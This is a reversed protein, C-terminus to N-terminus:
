ESLLTEVHDIDNRIKLLAMRYARIYMEIPGGPRNWGLKLAGKMLDRIFVEKEIPNNNLVKLDNISNNLAAKMDNISLKINTEDLLNFLYSNYGDKMSLSTKNVLFEKLGGVGTSVIPCGFLLGEAATLGFSETKSPVFLIDAAARYLIGWNTQFEVDQIILVNNPYITVLQQLSDIPYDSIQGMIIFLVDQSALLETAAQFFDLGKNYQFKGIFLVIMRNLDGYSLLGERILHLKASYKSTIILSQSSNEITEAYLLAADFTYINRPFNSNTEILMTNNFPNFGTFDLGNTIGIWEGKIARNLISPMILEKAYFDLSGEIMEQAIIKSVFTVIQAQDIAVASTYMRHGHFYQPKIETYNGLDLFKQVYSISNSYIPEEIYDHLTYAIAPKPWRVKEKVYLSNMFEIVLANSSGHIHVVDVGRADTLDFLPTDIDTNLYTILEAVAKCFYVDEWEQPLQRLPSYYIESVDNAKFASHFSDSERSPPGIVYVRISYPKPPESSMVDPNDTINWWFRNVMFKVPQQKGHRDRVQVELQAFKESRYLNRLYSYYPLIVHVAYSGNNAQAQALGTVIQGMSGLTAPGFEKSVHYITTGNSLKDPVNPDLGLYPVPDYTQKELILKDNEWLISGLITIFAQFLTLGILILIIFSFWRCGKKELLPGLFPIRYGMRVSRQFFNFYMLTEKESSHFSNLLTYQSPVRINPSVSRSRSKM